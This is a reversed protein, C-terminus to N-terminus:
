GCGVIVEIGTRKRLNGGAVCRLAFLAVVFSRRQCCLITRCLTLLSTLATEGILYFWIVIAYFIAAIGQSIGGNCNSRCCKLSAKASGTESSKVRRLIRCM